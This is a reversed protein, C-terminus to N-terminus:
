AMIWAMAQRVEDDPADPKDLLARVYNDVSQEDACLVGRIAKRGKVHDRIAEDSSRMVEALMGDDCISLWRVVQQPLTALLDPDPLGSNQLSAAAKRVRDGFDDAPTQEAVFPEDTEDPIGSPVLISVLRGGVSVTVEKFRNAVRRMARMVNRIAALLSRM